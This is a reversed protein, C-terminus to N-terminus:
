RVRKMYTHTYPVYTCGARGRCVKKYRTETVQQYKPQAVPATYVNGYTTPGPLYRPAAANKTAQNLRGFFNRVPANVRPPTANPVVTYSPSQTQYNFGYSPTPYNPVVYNQTVVSSGYNDPVTSYFQQAHGYNNFGFLVCAAFMFGIIWKKM